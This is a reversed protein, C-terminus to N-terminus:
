VVRTGQRWLQETLWLFQANWLNKAGCVKQTQCGIELHLALRRWVRSDCSFLALTFLVLMRRSGSKSCSVRRSGRFCEEVRFLSQDEWGVLNTKSQMCLLVGLKHAGKHGVQDLSETVVEDQWVTCGQRVAVGSRCEDKSLILREHSKEKRRRVDVELDREPHLKGRFGYVAEKKDVLVVKTGCMAAFYEHNQIIQMKTM